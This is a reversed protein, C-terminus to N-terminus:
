YQSMVYTQLTNSENIKANKHSLRKPRNMKANNYSLRKPKNMRSNFSHPKNPYNVSRKGFYRNVGVTVDVVDIYGTDNFCNFAASACGLAGDTNYAYSSAIFFETKKSKTVPFILALRVKPAGRAGSNALQTSNRWKVWSVEYGGNVEVGVHRGMYGLTVLFDLSPSNYIGVPAARTSNVLNVSNFRSAWASNGAISLGYYFPISQAQGLASFSLQLLNGWSDGPMVETGLYRSGVAASTRFSFQSPVLYEIGGALVGGSQLTLGIIASSLILLKKTQNM